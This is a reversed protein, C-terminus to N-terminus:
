SENGVVIILLDFGFNKGLQRSMSRGIIKHLPMISVPPVALAAGDATSDVRAIM